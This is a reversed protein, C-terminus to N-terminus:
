SPAAATFASALHLQRLMPRKKDQHRRMRHLIDDLTQVARLIHPGKNLMVCEARHGMAADTIEARSPIGEKALTELVQTAWIVPVHAAECIWLMEEQVEALREYGCEVALDGRAIMVGCAASRMAALLMSPLHDFGRRTEIKLVIAPTGRGLRAIEATLAEVDEVSNAFSMAVMDAHEVIFRLDDRDQETLAPLQLPSDPLNIGKDARLKEGRPRARVIRVHLGARNVKEVTGGIRGDDLWVSDGARVDAFVQPLTCGIHAPTLVRGSRDLTAAEGPEDDPTLLLLDGQNLLLSGELPPLDGIRTERHKGHGGERRLALGPALYATNACLGWAHGAGVEVIERRRARGGADEFDVRDGKDLHRLWDAGVPLSADAESPPEAGTEPAHLWLRAPATVRGFADRQPRAKKVKPGPAVPGTRLKPGALDMLVKCRRKLAQEARRLYEIMRLWAGPEDHACNIRMCNMGGALLDHVLQYDFAAESPMTVMIRVNRGVPTEGLLVETHGNLLQTGAEFGFPAPGAPAPAERGALRHLVGLVADVSALVHPESRGLSSLGLEALRAQLPRLDHQRMALYHVLNRASDRYHPHIAVTSGVTKDALEVLAARLGGVEEILADLVPSAEPKKM